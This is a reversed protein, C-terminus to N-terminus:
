NTKQYKRKFFWYLTGLTVIFGLFSRTM